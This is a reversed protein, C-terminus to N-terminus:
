VSVAIVAVVAVVAFPRAHRSPRPAWSLLSTTTAAAAALYHALLVFLKNSSVQYVLVNRV